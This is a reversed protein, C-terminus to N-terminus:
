KDLHSLLFEREFQIFELDKKEKARLHVIFEAVAKPSYGERLAMAAITQLDKGELTNKNEQLWQDVNVLTM